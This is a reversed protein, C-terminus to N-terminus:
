ASWAAPARGVSRKTARAPPVRDSSWRGTAAPPRVSAPFPAGALEGLPAMGSAATWRFAIDGTDAVSYGIAASGDASVGWAVSQFAGFPLDGLPTLSAVAARGDRAAIVIVSLVVLGFQWKM